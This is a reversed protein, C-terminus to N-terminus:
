KKEAVAAATLFYVKKAGAAFLKRACENGTAGTTLIDDVLVVTRGEVAKRDTVKFAGRVNETREQFSMQKQPKTERRKELLAVTLEGEGGQAFLFDCVSEALREAQNYGRERRKEKSLPVPIVLLPEDIKEVGAELFCAAMREGLYAALRPQGNKLRNVVAASEGKYVLASFGQTCLPPNSKCDM